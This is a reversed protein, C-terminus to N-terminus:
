GLRERIYRSINEIIVVTIFLLVLIMGVQDYQRWGLKEKLLLGIGGAGVYGLIAAARVNIELTYLCISFYNPLIQPTIAANFAELKTAGVAEMAEFAGMDVTEVKEYLMKVVLGFTFITIAVTGAFSGLGFVYTAFLAIILTPITRMISLIIRIFGLLWKSKNINSSSLIAIPFALLCGLLSGLVSMKITELLPPIVSKLFSFDPPFMDKLIVFFEDGRKILKSLDFGTVQCAAWLALLLGFIIFPALPCPPQVETGNSLTIKKPKFLNKIVKM